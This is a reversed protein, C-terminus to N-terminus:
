RRRGTDVRVGGPLSVFRPRPRTSPTLRPGGDNPLDWRRLAEIAPLGGVVTDGFRGSTAHALVRVACWMVVRRPLRWVIARLLADGRRRIREAANM